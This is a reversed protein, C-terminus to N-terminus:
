FATEPGTPWSAPASADRFAPATGELAQSIRALLSHITAAAVYHL